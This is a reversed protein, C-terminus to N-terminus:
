ARYNALEPTVRNTNAERQRAAEDDYFFPLYAYRRGRTVPLAQHLLACSFVVAGGTPARYRRTGFEPFMLDGGEYDEANLNITCAFRRHATGATTNDRHASFYGGEGDGNYCAVIDREIRTVNFQLAKKVQPLLLRGIKQRLQQRLAADEIEYDSRRKFGHDVVGTTIGGVERMFGSESGGRAEYLAILHQCTSRDFIRPVVLVPAAAESRDESALQSLEAIIGAGDKLASRSVVRMMPDLLLWHPVYRKQADTAGYLRSIKADYDLFWRIGPLQRSIRGQEEDTRDVTVGFFCARADDFLHRNRVILQLAEAVPEWGASGAFFLLIYRGGVTDFAYNPNGDLAQANFWPATEGPSLMARTAARGSGDASAPDHGDRGGTVRRRM